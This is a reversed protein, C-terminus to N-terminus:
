NQALQQWQAGSVSICFYEHDVQFHWRLVPPGLDRCDVEDLSPLGLDFAQNEPLIAALFLGAITNLLETMIDRLKQEPVDQAASAHIGAAIQRLLSEPMFMRLEGQVPDHVLLTACFGEPHGQCDHEFELPRVDMFAMTALTTDVAEFMARDLRQSTEPM